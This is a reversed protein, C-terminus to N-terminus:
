ARSQFSRLQERLTEPKLLLFQADGFSLADGDALVTERDFLRKANVFTGNRSGLDKISCLKQTPDWHFSAHRSSVSPEHVTLDSDDARGVTLEGKEPLLLLSLVLLNEFEQLMALIQEPLRSANAMGVTEGRGLLRALNLYVNATPRQVLAFPGLQAKLADVDSASLDRVRLM